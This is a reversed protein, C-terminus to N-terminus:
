SRRSSSSASCSTAATAADASRAQRTGTVVLLVVAVPMEFAIGFAMFLLLVFDLYSAIDTMMRVGTPTTSALFQFMLPFVVFYAFAVGVYFLVISSVILPLAFRREHQYLGPAVFGWIQFLIYPMALFIAGILSSSSRRWSRAVGREDRDAVHRGAAQRDAAPRGAHVAREPLVRAARLLHVVAIVARLLRDRLELLHSILTGEALPEGEAPSQSM